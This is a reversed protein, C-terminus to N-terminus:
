VESPDMRDAWRQCGGITILKLWFGSGLAESEVENGLVASRCRRELCLPRSIATILGKLKLILMRSRA